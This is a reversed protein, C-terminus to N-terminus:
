TDHSDVAKEFRKKIYCAHCCFKRNQNGYSEFENSSGSCILTYWAKKVIQNHNCKWWIRRCEESCFKKPQGRTGQALPKGCHKCVTFTEKVAKTTSNAVTSSKCGTLNNRRCYSKITNKSIGLASAIQTYSQGELRMQYIKKKQDTTMQKVGMFFSRGLPAVGYNM